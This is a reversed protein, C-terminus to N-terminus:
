PPQMQPRHMYRVHAFTALADAAAKLFVRVEREGAKYLDEISVGPAVEGM